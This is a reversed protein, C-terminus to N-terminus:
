LMKQAVVDVFSPKLAAKDNRVMWERWKDGFTPVLTIFSFRRRLAFDVLALSRDAINMTGIVYINPPIHVAEAEEDKQYCLQLAEGPHRKDAELLTLLEGFIQAPNGRNIEEILMVYPKDPHGKAEHILDLFPGNCLGLKGEGVPRWGRVFDEYSITSHFQVSRFRATDIGGLLAYALKKGLWTKGTGPPGQLIINKKYRLRELMGALEDYPLFCGEDVITQLTYSKDLTPAPSDIAADPTSTPDASIHDGERESLFKKYLKLGASYAGGGFKSKVTKFNPAESIIDYVDSFSQLTTYHFLNTTEIQIDDLKATAVKLAYIYQDRAGQKYLEGDAKKQIAFWARFDDELSLKDGSDEEQPKWTPKLSSSYFDILKGAKGKELNHRISLM